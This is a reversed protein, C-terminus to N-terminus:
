TGPEAPPALSVLVSHPPMHGTAIAASADDGLTFIVRSEDYGAFGNSPESFRPPLAAEADLLNAWMALLAGGGLRWVIHIAHGDHLARVAINGGVGELKPAIERARISLLERVLNLRARHNDREPASWDIKSGEFTSSANPDPIANRSAPDTFASWRAFERRRGERVADALDGGFDTFFAFPRTEGWEEGMFMLPIHPSLLLVATLADVLAHPALTSLREGFARNGIQDHNQLFDIFAIPPLHSSRSGRVKSGWATSPEGQYAFGEALARTLQAVSSTYDAYYGENEGTALVHACHHFDDNWEATYLRPRGDQDREHLVTRNSEDETTLHIHRDPLRERVSLALEELVTPQSPDRIQDIADLRLGDLRFESLWYIANEIAFARVAPQTYDIAAGWPTHRSEDFFEPAYTGIYNGDPGFHNYVVDLLVMLRRAHAADVLRRLDDPTGYANHPAYMLVGDYGWGRRGSFQAVPMLEIATVGLDVLHDLRSAIGDFTGDPSFTGTHLEYIVADHWPRGRWQEQEWICSSSDTLISPGHVDTAQARSAPDPVRAVTELEFAYHGGIGVEDTVAELWGGGVEQMPISSGSAHAHLRLQPQSPAWIRFRASGDPLLEPGWSWRHAGETM